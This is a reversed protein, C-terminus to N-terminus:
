RRFFWFPRLSTPTQSRNLFGPHLLRRSALGRHLSDFFFLRQFGFTDFGRDGAFQFLGGNFGRDRGRRVFPNSFWFADWSGQEALFLREGPQLGSFWPNAFPNALSFEPREIPSWEPPVQDDRLRREYSRSSPEVTERLTSYYVEFDSTVL